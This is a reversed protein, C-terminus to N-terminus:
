DSNQKPYKKLLIVAAELVQDATIEKMCRVNYPCPPTTGFRTCPSCSQQSNLVIHKEGRPAWKAAIGPGFFSVTPIDLGVAIHLVGSDGSIVLCSLNIVAATESLSTQGALNVGECSRGILEGDARDSHGGVVVIKYGKEALNAAVSEFRDPGWQREAISAGPFFVVFPKGILPKLLSVAQDSISEPVSLFPAARDVRDESIGLPALLRAFSDAEYDDQFYSVTHTFMRRRENTGFGIKVPSMVLRAVVASLRHWQETDIVIDYRGRLAKLLDPPRDYLLVTDIDNSLEFIGANRKEALVTISIDPYLSKIFSIVPILHVADGIGGPRILMCYLNSNCCSLNYNKPLIKTIASGLIADLIKLLRINM